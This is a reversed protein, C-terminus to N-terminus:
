LQLEKKAMSTVVIHVNFVDQKSKLRETNTIHTHCTRSTHTYTHIIHTLHTHIIHTHHMYSTHTLHTHIIHSTHTINHTHTYLASPHTHANSHDSPCAQHRIQQQMHGPQSSRLSRPIKRHSVGVEWYFCQFQLFYREKICTRPSHIFTRLSLLCKVWQAM